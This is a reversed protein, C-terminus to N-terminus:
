EDIPLPTIPSVLNQERLDQWFPSPIVEQTAAIDEKVHAPRTTGPIVAAVAPHAMSFQLAVSKVSVQYKSALEQIKKAKSVIEDPAEQYEYHNGGVLVGSSYPAGVIIGINKELASPMLKQLSHEHKM